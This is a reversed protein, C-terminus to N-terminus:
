QAKKGRSGAPITGGEDRPTKHERESSTQSSITEASSCIEVATKRSFWIGCVGVAVPLYFFLWVNPYEVSRLDADVALRHRHLGYAATWLASCHWHTHAVLYKRCLRRRDEDDGAGYGKGERARWERSWYFGVAAHLVAVKPGVVDFWHPQTEFLATFLFVTGGFCAGLADFLHVWSAQGVFVYDAAFSLFAQLWWYYPLFHHINLHAMVPVQRGIAGSDFFPGWTFFSLLHFFCSLPYYLATREHIYARWRSPVNSAPRAFPFRFASASRTM